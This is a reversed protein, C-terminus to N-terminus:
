DPIALDEKSLNNDRLVSDKESLNMQNNQESARDSQNKNDRKKQLVTIKPFDQSNMVSNYPNVVTM